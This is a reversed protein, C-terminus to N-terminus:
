WSTLVLHNVVLATAAQWYLWTRRDRAPLLAAAAPLWIAFPLWIREVEAKSLGSLDAAVVAAVAGLCLLVPPTRATRLQVVARRLIVAAAPGASVALAALNGWVWYTYPRASALGQYYRVKVLRYGELWDFGLGTMLAVVLAAGVVACALRSLQRVTTTGAAPSTARPLRRARAADTTGSARRPRVPDLTTTAPAPQAPNTAPQPPTPGTTATAPPATGTTATAPRAPNATATAAPGPRMPDATASAPQPPAPESSPGPAAPTPTLRQPAPTAPLRQRQWAAVTVAAAPLALLILGYSLYACAALGAGGLGACWWSPRTLGVALLALATAAVGMFLGDASVGVWVAGPFLVLFPLAARGAAEDGLARLTVAVAVTAVCGVLVCLVAAWGGGHLGLRDLGVFVLLVGPPHGSVHTTWNDPSFLLIHGTFGRLMAHVDTVGPVETLYEFPTTLRGAVGRQWGDVLALAFTWAVSAVWGALLLRRWPMRDALVPGWHIVAVAVALAFPTGPGVHPLFHGFLPAAPAHVPHGAWGFAAGVLVAVGVLVFAAIAAWRDPSLRAAPRM